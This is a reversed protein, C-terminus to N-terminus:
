FHSVWAWTTKNTRFPMIECNTIAHIKIISFFNFWFDLNLNEGVQIKFGACCLTFKRNDACFGCSILMVLWAILELPNRTKIKLSRFEQLEFL